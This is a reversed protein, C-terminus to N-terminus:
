RSDKPFAAHYDKELAVLQDFTYQDAILKKADLYQKFSNRAYYERHDKTYALKNKKRGKGYKNSAINDNGPSEEGIVANLEDAVANVEENAVVADSIVTAEKETAGNKKLQKKLNYRALAHYVGAGGLGVAGLGLAGYGIIKKYNRPSKKLTTKKPSKKLPTKKPPM